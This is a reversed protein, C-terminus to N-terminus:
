LETEVLNVDSLDHVLNIKNYSAFLVAGMVMLTTIIMVNSPLKLKDM